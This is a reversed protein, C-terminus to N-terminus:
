VEDQREQQASGEEGTKLASKVGSVDWGEGTRREGKPPSPNVPRRGTEKFQQTALDWFKKTRTKPMPNKAKINNRKKKKKKPKKKNKRQPHTNEKKPGATKRRSRSLISKKGIETGKQHANKKSSGAKYTPFLCQRV